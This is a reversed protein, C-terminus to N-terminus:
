NLKCFVIVPNDSDTFGTIGPNVGYRKFEQNVDGIPHVLYMMENKDNLGIPYRFIYNEETLTLTKLEKLKKNFVIVNLSSNNETQTSIELVINESNIFVNKILSFGQKNIMEFGRMIDTKFFSEPINFAGFDLEYVPFLTDNKFQYIKNNFPEFYYVQNKFISFCNEGIPMNIETNNPLLKKTETGKRDLLYVQHDHLMKNYNSSIAYHKNDVFQFSCAQHNLKQKKEFTGNPLYSYIANKSGISSLIDITDNRVIFDVANPYEEPGNGIKGIKNIFNGNKDFILLAKQHRRDLVYLNNNKWELYLDDGILINPNTELRLHRIEKFINESQTSDLLNGVDILIPESLDTSVKVCSFLLSLILFFFVPKTRM